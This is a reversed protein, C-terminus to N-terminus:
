LREDHWDEKAYKLVGVIVSDQLQHHGAPTSIVGYKSQAIDRDNVLCQVIDGTSIEGCHKLASLREILPRIYPANGEQKGMDLPQVTYVTRLIEEPNSKKYIDIVQVVKALYATRASLIAQKAVKDMYSMSEM